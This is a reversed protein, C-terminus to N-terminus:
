HMGALFSAAIQRVRAACASDALNLSAAARFSEAARENRNLEANLNGRLLLFIPNGPYEAVLPELVGASREYEHEYTRINKALYFRAEVATLEGHNMANELERIGEQRDGGPIGMFVRLMKVIPSLTNVYYNYLGLGADADSMEPDLQKARLFQARAEIGAHATAHREYRLAYLRAKLAWGIGAYLHMEASESTKLRADALHIAHDALRLYEEDGPAAGRQWGDVMGWKVECAECYMRWWSAEVEILYGLPSEPDARQVRHSIEIAGQTDGSYMRQIGERADESIKPNGARATTAFMMALLCPILPLAGTRRAAKGTRKANKM